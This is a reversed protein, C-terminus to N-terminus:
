PVDDEDPAFGIADLAPQIEPNAMFKKWVLGTRHNEIGVVIQAQNLGMYVEDFWNETENFGDHFGYVGWVKGGLNRYFHKLAAMSEEPTYPMCGLAASCCITGNDDRPWPKGGGSNVGASRGWCEPGYGVRDRPNDICYARNILALARNNRFYNTYKDRKGRPDFGLYSFQTFFLDGGTGCGVDLKVGYYEHGNTYHDGETTRSWGRRYDVARKSQGAWGTHYLSAPVGHTPSATALLYVIMTENWGVLPHSIHWQHEPSWHWYLVESEPTKRYWDWEVEGWLTAITERIEHEVANDRDFYQRAALLGQVLFATEVLDGGDDYTGFYPNVRGADGQLFHPWVGHFRDARALFRVIKLMREASEERTIFKRETAVLQAMIGFGSAGLAVLNEDGPLIELAMGSERHAAEGYYRFCAEQVMDLLEDDSMARTAGSVADSPPSENNHVDVATLRYHAMKGPGGVFDVARRYRGPRTAIPEFRKGDWSRYVRYSLLDDEGNPRWSLDLHSDQGRVTLGEPRAPPEDDEADGDIIRVDDILLTHERGDDLGQLIAIEELQWIEFRQEATGGYLESLEALPLRLEAWKGAALVGHRELLEITPGHNGRSDQFGIRPSHEPKLEEDTYCWLSLVNGDFQFRRGYQRAVKITIRWDGGQRSRWKVRLANPASVFRESEVPCKGGEIQLESPGIVSAASHYYARDAASNEFFVHRDYFGAPTAAAALSCLFVGLLPAIISVSM